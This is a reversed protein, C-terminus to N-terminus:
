HNAHLPEQHMVIEYFPFAVSKILPARKLKEVNQLAVTFINLGLAKAILVERSYSCYTPLDTRKQIM